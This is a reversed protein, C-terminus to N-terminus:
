FQKTFTILLSFSLVASAAWGQTSYSLAGTAGAPVTNATGSSGKLQLGGYPKYDIKGRGVLSEIRQPTTADWFLTVALSDEINLQIRDIRLATAKQVNSGTPDVSSLTAPNILNADVRTVDSTDLIGELKVIVRSPGDELIQISTSNAM